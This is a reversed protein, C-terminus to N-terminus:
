SGGVIKFSGQIGKNPYYNLDKFVKAFNLLPRKLDSFICHRAFTLQCDRSTRDELELANTTKSNVCSTQM